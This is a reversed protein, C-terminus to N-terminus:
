IEFILKAVLRLLIIMLAMIGLFQLGTFVSQFITALLPIVGFWFIIFGAVMGLTVVATMGKFLDAAKGM